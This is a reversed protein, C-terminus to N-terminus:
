GNLGQEMNVFDPAPATSVIAGTMVNPQAWQTVGNADCLEFDYNLCTGLYIPGFLGTADAVIPNTNPVTLTPENYTPRKVVGAQGAAWTFLLAGPCALGLKYAQQRPTPTFLAAM